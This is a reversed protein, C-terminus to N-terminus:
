HLIQPRVQPSCLAPHRNKHLICSLEARAMIEGYLNVYTQTPETSTCSTDGLSCCNTPQCLGCFGPCHPVQQVKGVATEYSRAHARTEPLWTDRLARCDTSHSVVALDVPHVSQRRKRTQWNVVKWCIKSCTAESPSAGHAISFRQGSIHSYSAPTESGHLEVSLEARRPNEASPARQHRQARLLENLSLEKLSTKTPTARSLVPLFCDGAPLM